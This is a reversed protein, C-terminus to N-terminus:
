RVRCTYRSCRSYRCYTTWVASEPWVLGGRNKKHVTALLSKAIQDAVTAVHTGGKITAISNAFSVQQFTGSDSITFAVEWRDNIREHVVTQKVSAAGSQEAANDAASSVHMEVYQKFSKIGIPENNLYVKVDKGHKKGEANTTKMTGAMNTRSWLMMGLMMCTEPVGAFALALLPRPLATELVCARLLDSPADEEPAAVESASLSVSSPVDFM